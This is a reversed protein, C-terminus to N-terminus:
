RVKAFNKCQRSFAGALAKEKDVFIMVSPCSRPNISVLGGMLQDKHVLMQIERRSVMNVVCGTLMTVRLLNKISLM